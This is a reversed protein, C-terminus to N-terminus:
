SHSQVNCDVTCDFYSLTQCILHESIVAQWKSVKSEPLAIILSNGVRLDHANLHLPEKAIDVVNQIIHKRNSKSICVMNEVLCVMACEKKFFVPFLKQFLKMLMSPCVECSHPTIDCSCNAPMSRGPVLQRDLPPMPVEGPFQRM